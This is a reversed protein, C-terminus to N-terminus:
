RLDLTYRVVPLGIPSDRPEGTRVWGRGEYFRRGRESGQPTTLLLSAFGEAKAGAVALEHLEAALGTGWFPTRVYLQWFFCLGPDHPIPRWTVQESAITTVHGALRGDEEAVRSRIGDLAMQERFVEVDFPPDPLEWGAPAFEGFTRFGDVVTAAMEDIDDATAARIIPKM